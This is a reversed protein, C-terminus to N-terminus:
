ERLGSGVTKCVTESAMVAPRQGPIIRCHAEEAIKGTRWIDTRVRVRGPSIVGQWPCRGRSGEALPNVWEAGPTARANCHARLVTATADRDWPWARSQVSPATRVTGDPKQGCGASAGAPWGTVTSEAGSIEALDVTVGWEGASWGGSIRWVAPVV